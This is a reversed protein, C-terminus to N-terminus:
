FYLMGQRQLKRTIRKAMRDLFAFHLRKGRAFIIVKQLSHNCLIAFSIRTHL